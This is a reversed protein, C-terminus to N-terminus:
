QDEAELDEPRPTADHPTQRGATPARGPQDSGGAAAPAWPRDFGRGRAAEVVWREGERRLALAGGRRWVERDVAQARCDPPAQRVTLVLVARRCDDSFAAPSRAVAVLARDALRGVCGDDDCAFGAQLTKDDASRADADAALWEKVVFADHTKLIQLRGDGGRVAFGDGSAAVLVEPKPTAAAVAIAALAL